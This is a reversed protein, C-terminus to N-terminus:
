QFIPIYIYVWCHIWMMPLPCVCLFVILFAFYCFDRAESLIVFILAFDICNAISWLIACLCTFPSPTKNGRSRAVPHLPSPLLSLDARNLGYMDCIYDTAQCPHVCSWIPPLGFDPYVFKHINNSGNLHSPYRLLNRPTAQITFPIHIDTRNSQQTARISHMASSRITWIM